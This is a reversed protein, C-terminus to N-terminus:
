GPGSRCLDLHREGLLESERDKPRAFYYVDPKLTTFAGEAYAGDPGFSADCLCRRACFSFCLSPLLRSSACVLLPRSLIQYAESDPLANLDGCVM